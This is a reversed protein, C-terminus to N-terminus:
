KSGAVMARIDRNEFVSSKRDTTGASYSPPTPDVHLHQMLHDIDNRSRFVPEGTLLFRLVCGIASIDVRRDPEKGLITEPAMYAPTGMAISGTRSTSISQDRLLDAPLATTSDTQKRHRWRPHAGHEIPRPHDIRFQRNAAISFRGDHCRVSTL